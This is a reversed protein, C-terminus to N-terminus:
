SKLANALYDISKQKANELRKNGEIYNPELRSLEPFPSRITLIQDHLKLEELLNKQRCDMTPMNNVLSFFPKNFLISFATGHFSSTLVIEANAFWGLFERPGADFVMHVRPVLMKDKYNGPTIFVLDYGTTKMVEKALLDAYPQPNYAYGMYYCLIYKNKLKPKVALNTWIDIELLLTPDLVQFSQRDILDTVIQVGTAERVSIDSFTRLYKRYLAVYRQDIKSNGFSAAYSIKKLNKPAFELLFTPDYNMYTPNWVQDSGTIYIDYLPPNNRLSGITKYQFKSLNLYNSIFDSFVQKRKDDKTVLAGINKKIYKSFSYYELQTAHKKVHYSNPYLYDIVECDYGFNFITRQLAYAQLVSGYNAIRHITTIGVKTM